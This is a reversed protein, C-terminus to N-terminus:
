DADALFHQNIRQPLDAAEVAVFVPFAGRSFKAGLPRLWRGGWEGHLFKIRSLFSDCTKTVSPKGIIL